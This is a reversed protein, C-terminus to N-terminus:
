DPCQKHKLERVDGYGVRDLQIDRRNKEEGATRNRLAKKHKSAEIGTARRNM